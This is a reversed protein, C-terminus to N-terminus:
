ENLAGAVMLESSRQIWIINWCAHSSSTNHEHVTDVTIDALTVPVICSQISHVRGPCGFQSKHQMLQCNSHSDSATQQLSSLQVVQLDQERVQKRSSAFLLPAWCNCGTQRHWLLRFSMDTKSATNPQENLATGLTDRQGGGHRREKTDQHGAVQEVTRPHREQSARWGVDVMIM